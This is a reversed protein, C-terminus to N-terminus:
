KISLSQESLKAAVSVIARRTAAYPDDGYKESSVAQLVETFIGTAEVEVDHSYFLIDLRLKVALRLADGDDELPNWIEFEEGNCRRRYAGVRESWEWGESETIGAARATSRLLEIDTAMM